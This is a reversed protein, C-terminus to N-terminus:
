KRTCLVMTWEMERPKTRMPKLSCLSTNVPSTKRTCKVTKFDHRPKDVPKVTPRKRSRPLRRGARAEAVFPNQTNVSM